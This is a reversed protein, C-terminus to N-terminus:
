QNQLHQRRPAILSAGWGARRIMAAVRLLSGCIILLAFPVYAMAYVIPHRHGTGAAIDAIPSVVLDSFFALAIYELGFNRFARWHNSTFVHQFRELSLFALIYTWVVGVAFFPMVAQLFPHTSRWVLWAVLAVHPLQAAAYALGFERGHRALIAFRPGFLVAIASGAYAPWFFLLSLRGTLRLSLGIRAAETTGLAFATLTVGLAACFAGIMWLGAGTKGQKRGTQMLRQTAAAKIHNPSTL